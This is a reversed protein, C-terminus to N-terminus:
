KCCNLNTSIKDKQNFNTSPFVLILWNVKEEANQTKFAQTQEILWNVKPFLTVRSVETKASLQVAIRSSVKHIFLRERNSNLSLYDEQLRKKM